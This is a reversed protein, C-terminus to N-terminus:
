VYRVPLSLKLCVKPIHLGKKVPNSLSKQSLWSSATPIPKGSSSLNIEHLDITRASRRQTPPAKLQVRCDSRLASSAPRNTLRARDLGRFHVQSRLASGTSDAPQGARIRIIQSDALRYTKYKDELEKHFRCCLGAHGKPTILYVALEVNKPRIPRSMSCSSRPKSKRRLVRRAAQGDPRQLDRNSSMPYSYRSFLRRLQRTTYKLVFMKQDGVPAVADAAFAQAALLILLCKV